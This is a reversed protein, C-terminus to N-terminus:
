DILKTVELIAEQDIGLLIRRITLDSRDKMRKSRILNMKRLSGTSWTKSCIEGSRLIVFGTMAPVPPHFSLLMAPSPWLKPGTLLM